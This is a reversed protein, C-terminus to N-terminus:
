GEQNPNRNTLLLRLAIDSEPVTAAYFRCAGAMSRRVVGLGCKQAAATSAMSVTASPELRETCDAILIDEQYNLGVALADTETTAVWADKSLTLDYAYVYAATAIAAATEMYKKSAAESKEAGKRSKEAEGASGAAANASNGAASEAKAAEKRSKEAAAASAAANEANTGSESTAQDVATLAESRKKALDTLAGSRAAETDELAIKRAAAIDTLAQSHENKTDALAQKAGKEAAAAAIASNQAQNVSNLVLNVFQEYVSPDLTETTSDTDITEYCTYQGPKTMAVYGDDSVALLMWTGQKELTWRRDVVVCQNEDLVQPDPLTGSLRQVHLTVACGAWEEPLAFRLTDVKASWVGGLYLTEPNVRFTSGNDQLKRVKINLESMDASRETKEM